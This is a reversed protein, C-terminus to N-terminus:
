EYPNPKRAISEGKDRWAREQPTNLQPKTNAQPARTVDIDQGVEGVRVGSVSVIAEGYSGVGQDVLKDVEREQDPTLSPSDM